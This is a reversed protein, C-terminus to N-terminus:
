IRFTTSILLACHPPSVTFSQLYDQPGLMLSRLKRTADIVTLRADEIESAEPAIMSKM